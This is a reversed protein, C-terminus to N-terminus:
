RALLLDHWHNAQCQRYGYAARDFTRGAPVQKSRGRAHARGALPSRLLAGTLVVVGLTALLLFPRKM